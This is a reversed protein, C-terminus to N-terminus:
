DLELSNVTATKKEPNKQAETKKNENIIYENCLARKYFNVITVVILNLDFVL